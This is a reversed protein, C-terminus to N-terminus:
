GFLRAHDRTAEVLLHEFRESAQEESYTLWRRVIDWKFIYVLLAVFEFHRNEALRSLQQWVVAMLLTQLGLRDEDELKQRAEPLWPLVPALRFDPETWHHVIHGVFRGAGWPEGPRPPPRGAHRLRLAAVATRLEIRFELMAHLAPDAASAMIERYRAVIEADTREFPQRQWELFDVALWVTRLDDPDLMSLRGELRERNIPLEKAREFYSLPPLSALLTYYLRAM